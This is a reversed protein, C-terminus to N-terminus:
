LIAPHFIHDTCLSPSAIFHCGSIFIISCLSNFYNKMLHAKWINPQCSSQKDVKKFLRLYCFNDSLLVDQALKNFMTSVAADDGLWNRIIWRHRLKGVDGSSDILSNMFTVHDTVCRYDEYDFQLGDRHPFFGNTFYLIALNSLNEERDPFKTTDFLQVLLYRCSIKSCYYTETYQYKLCGIQFIPDEDNQLEHQYSNRLTEILISMCGDLCM